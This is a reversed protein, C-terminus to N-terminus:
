RPQKLEAIFETVEALTVGTETTVGLMNECASTVQEQDVSCVVSAMASLYREKDTADMGRWEAVTVYRLGDRYRQIDFSSRSHLWLSGTSAALLVNLVVSAILNKRDNTM